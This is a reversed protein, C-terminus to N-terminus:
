QMTIQIIIFLFKELVVYIVKKLYPKVYKSYIAHRIVYVKKARAMDEIKQLFIIAQVHVSLLSPLREVVGDLSVNMLIRLLSSLAPPLFFPSFDYINGSTQYM